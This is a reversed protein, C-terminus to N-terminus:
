TSHSRSAHIVGLERTRAHALQRQTAQGTGHDGAADKADEEASTPTLQDMFM